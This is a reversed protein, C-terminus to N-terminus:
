IPVIGPKHFTESFERAGDFDVSVLWCVSLHIGVMVGAYLTLADPIPLKDPAIGLAASLTLSASALGDLVDM